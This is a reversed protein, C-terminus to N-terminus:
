DAVCSGQGFHSTRRAVACGIEEVSHRDFKREALLIITTVHHNARLIHSKLLSVNQSDCDCSFFVVCSFAGKHGSADPEFVCICRPHNSLIPLSRRTQHHRRHSHSSDMRWWGSHVRRHSSWFEQLCITSELRFQKDDRPFDHVVIYHPAMANNTNSCKEDSSEFTTPYLIYDKRWTQTTSQPNHHVRLVYLM